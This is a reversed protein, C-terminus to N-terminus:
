LKLKEVILEGKNIYAKLNRVPLEINYIQEGIYIITNQYVIDAEIIGTKSTKLSTSVGASSGVEIAKIGNKGYIEGGRMVGPIGKFIVKNEAKIITNYCGKGIIEVNNSAYVHCNQCYNIIIDSPLSTIQYKNVFDKLLNILDMVYHIDSLTCNDIMNYINIAKNWLGKIEESAKSNSIFETAIIIEEKRDKFKSELLVKFFQSPNIKDTFKGTKILNIYINTIEKLFNNLNIIYEYAKLNDIEKDGAKLTSSILNKGIKINGGSTINAGAVNGFINIDNDANISLGELVNGKIVVDGNFLINGTKIDVDGNVIYSPFVCISEGKLSVLGSIEALARNGNDVIECGPGKKIRLITRNKPKIIDGYVDFGAKGDKGNEKLALLKGKEVYELNNINYYDVKGEIEVPKKENEIQFFFNIKDDVPEQPALGQAVLNRGGKLITNLKEWKVGYTVKNDDLIKQIDEKLFLDPSEEKVLSTSISLETSEDSDIIDYLKDNIYEIDIYAFMKNESVQLSISRDKSINRPLIMVTDESRILTKGKIEKNNVIIIVNDSPVLAPLIDGENYILQGDKVRLTGKSKFGLIEVEITSQKFLGAKKEKTSYIFEIRSKGLEQEAKILAEDLTKGNFLM